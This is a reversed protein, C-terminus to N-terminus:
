QAHYFHQLFCHLNIFCMQTGFSKSVASVGFKDFYHHSFMLDHIEITSVIAYKRPVNPGWKSYFIFSIVFSLNSLCCHMGVQSFPLEIFAKLFCCIIGGAASYCPPFLHCLRSSFRLSKMTCFCCKTVFDKKNTSFCLCSM